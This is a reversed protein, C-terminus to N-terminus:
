PSRATSPLLAPLAEAARLRAMLTAMEVATRAAEAGKNKAPATSRDRAQALTDCTLVGFAVPVGTDLTVQGCGRACEACVYTYHDTEGRIVAGLAVIADIRGSLALERAALPLELAGPVPVLTIAEEPVRCEALAALAGSLLGDTVSRNFRSQVVAIRLSRGDNTGAIERM